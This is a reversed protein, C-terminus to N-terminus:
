KITYKNLIILSVINLTTFLLFFSNVKTLAEFMFGTYLHEVVSPVLNYMFLTDSDEQFNQTCLVDDNMIM